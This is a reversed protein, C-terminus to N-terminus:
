SSATVGCSSSCTGSCVNSCAIACGGTCDQKCGSICTAVCIGTCDSCRSDMAGNSLDEAIQLVSNLFNAQVVSGSAPISADVGGASYSLISVGNVKTANSMLTADSLLPHTVMKTASVNATTGFGRALKADSAKKSISNLTSASVGLAIDSIKDGSYDNAM